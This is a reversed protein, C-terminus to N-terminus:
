DPRVIRGLLHDLIMRGPRTTSLNDDSYVLYRAECLRDIEQFDLVADLAGGYEIELRDLSVGESLRLGMLLAEELREQRALPNREREGTKKDGEVAGLWAEPTRIQTTAVKGGDALTLRGHAGPGIGVYDGYRWYTLNHRSQGGSRAYNSVEYGRFGAELLASETWEYMAAASDEDLPQWDGRRVAGAFPTNEEITLQYLSIHDGAWSLARSLEEEWEALTQDPRGYILDFSYRDFLTRATTFAELAQEASHERGLFSLASNELSQVGLSLRNIGADKFAQLKGREVSTPNAELTIETDLMVDWLDAATEIVAAVTEPEMLSPTGGGFFVSSLTRPGLEEAYFRLESVLADRWRAHDVLERVHSNFDCYPCKAKCFPWHVYLALPAQHAPLAPTM